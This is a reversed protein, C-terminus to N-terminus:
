AGPGTGAAAAVLELFKTGDFPKAVCARGGVAEVSRRAAPGDHGTMFVAPPRPEAMSAYCEVGSMGPLRIDLVLCDAAATCGSAHLAEASDFLRARFGAATLLRQLAQRMSHDDDVVVILAQETAM